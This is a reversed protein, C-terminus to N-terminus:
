NLDRRDRWRDPQDPQERAMAEARQRAFRWESPPGAHEHADRLRDLDHRSRESSAGVAWNGRRDRAVIEYTAVWRKGRKTTVRCTVRAGLPPVVAREAPAAKRRDTPDRGDADPRLLVGWEGVLAFPVPSAPWGAM